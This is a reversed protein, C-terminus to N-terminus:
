LLRHPGPEGSDRHASWYARRVGWCQFAAGSVGAMLCLVTLAQVCGPRAHIGFRFNSM